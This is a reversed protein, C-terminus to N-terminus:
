FDKTFDSVNVKVVRNSSAEPFEINSAVFMSSGVQIVVDAHQGGGFDETVNAPRVSAPVVRLSGGYSASGSFSLGNEVNSGASISIQGGSVSVPNTDATLLVTEGDKTEAALYAGEVKLGVYAETGLDGSGEDGGELILDSDGLAGKDSKWAAYLNRWDIGTANAWDVWHLTENSRLPSNVASRIVGVVAAATNANNFTFLENAPASALSLNKNLLEITAVNSTADIEFIDNFTVGSADSDSNIAETVILRVFFFNCQKQNAGAGVGNPTTYITQSADVAFGVFTYIDGVKLGLRAAYQAVSEGAQAASITLTSTPADATPDSFIFIGNDLSGESVVYKNPVPVNTKPANVITTLHTSPLTNYDLVLGARLSNLNKSMFLRQNNMGVKKGEFSHDFIEKGASYARLVTAMVARQALQAFTRPNDPRRNRVRSIQEGNLRYFVVDGLKGRAMGQFMNGKAM